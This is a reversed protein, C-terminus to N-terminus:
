ETYVTELWMCMGKCALSCWVKVLAKLIQAWAYEKPFGWACQTSKYTERKERKYNFHLSSSLCRSDWSASGPNLGEKGSRNGQQKYSNSYTCHHCDERWITTCWWAYCSGKWLFAKSSFNSGEQNIFWLWLIFAKHNIIRWIALYVHMWSKKFSQLSYGIYVAGKGYISDRISKTRGCM